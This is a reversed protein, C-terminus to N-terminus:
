AGHGQAEQQARLNNMNGERVRADGQPISSALSNFWPQIATHIGVGACAARTIRSAAESDYSGAHSAAGAAFATVVTAKGMELARNGVGVALNKSEQAVLQGREAWNSPQHRANPNELSAPQRLNNGHWAQDIAKLPNKMETHATYFLPVKNTEVQKLAEAGNVETGQQRQGMVEAHKGRLDAMNPVQHSSNAARLGMGLGIASGAAFSVALGVGVTGAMGYAQNGQAAARAASAVDFAAQGLRVNSPSNIKSIDAQKAQVEERLKTGSGPHIDNMKSVMENPVLVQADIPQHKRTAIADIAPKVVTQGALNGVAGTVAGVASQVAANAWSMPPTVAATPATLGPEAPKQAGARFAADVAGMGTNRGVGFAMGTGAVGLAATQHAVPMIRDLVTGPTQGYKVVAQHAQLAAADKGDAPANKFNDLTSQVATRAAAPTTRAQAALQESPVRRPVNARTDGAGAVPRQPETTAGTVQQATGRRSQIPSEPRAAASSTSARGPQQSIEATRVGMEVNVPVRARASPDIAGRTM